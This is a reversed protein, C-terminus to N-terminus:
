AIGEPDNQGRPLPVIARLGLRKELSEGELFYQRIAAIRSRLEDGVHLSLAAFRDNRRVLRSRDLAVVVGPHVAFAMQDFATEVLQLVKAADERAEVLQIAGKKAKDM